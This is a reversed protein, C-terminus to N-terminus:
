HEDPRTLRSVLIAAVLIGGQIMQVVPGSLNLITLGTGVMQLYLAGIATGIPTFVGVRFMSSGLFAAAYAPLLLGLGTNPNAAAAESNILVGAVAASVGVIGFGLTRLMRVRVGSLRAAEPNGGIAYMHRGYETHRLFLHAVLLVGLGIFVQHSLGLWSGTALNIFSQSIGQYVSQSNVIQLGLGAYVTGTAITLIFSPLRIYAILVGNVLGLLAGVGITLVIALVWNLGVWGTSLLVVVTVACLSTLGGVSLDYDNMALVVTIGLAIVMLPVCDRLIGKLTLATFFSDPRLISFAAFTALIAFLVGFRALQRRLTEQFSSTQREAPGPATASVAPGDSM